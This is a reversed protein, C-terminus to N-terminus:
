MVGTAPASGGLAGQDPLGSLALVTVFWSWLVPLKEHM